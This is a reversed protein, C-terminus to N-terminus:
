EEMCDSASETCVFETDDSLNSAEAPITIASDETKNDTESSKNEPFLNDKIKSIQKKAKNILSIKLGAQRPHKKLDKLVAKFMDAENDIILELASNSVINKSLEFAEIGLHVCYWYFKDSHKTNKLINGILDTFNRNELIIENEEERTIASAFSSYVKSRQDLTKSIYSSFFQPKQTLAEYVQNLQHLGKNM